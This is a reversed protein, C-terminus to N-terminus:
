PEAEAIKRAMFQGLQSGISMLFNRLEENMTIREHSFFAM